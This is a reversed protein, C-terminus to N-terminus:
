LASEIISSDPNMERYTCSIKKEASLSLSQSCFIRGRLFFQLMVMLLHRILYASLLLQYQRMCQFPSTNLLVYLCSETKSNVLMRSILNRVFDSLRIFLFIWAARIYLVSINLLYRSKEWFKWAFISVIIWSPGLYIEDMYKRKKIWCDAIISHQVKLM